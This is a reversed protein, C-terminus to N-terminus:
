SGSNLSKTKNLIGNLFATVGLMELTEEVGVYVIYSDEGYSNAGLVEIGLVGIFCLIGFLYSLRVVRKKELILLSILLVLTIAIIIGLSIIWSFSVFNDPNRIVDFNEKIYGNVFEHISFFEDLSLFILFLGVTLHIVKDLKNKVKDLYLFFLVGVFASVVTVFYAALTIEEDLYFISQDRGLIRVEHLNLHLLLIAFVITVLSITLKNNKVTEILKRM